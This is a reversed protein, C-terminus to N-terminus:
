ARIRFDAVIKQEIDAFSARGVFDAIEKVDANDPLMAPDPRTIPEIFGSWPTRRLFAEMERRAPHDEAWLYSWPKRLGMFHTVVPQVGAFASNKAATTMNFLPSLELWGGQLVANLAAQDHYRHADHAEMVKRRIARRNWEKVDILLVGSNLYKGAPGAIRVERAAEETGGFTMILDRAAAVAHGGMDLDFLRYLYRKDPYTDSDLYLLRDFYKALMEPLFYRLYAAGSIRAMTNPLLTDMPRIPQFSCEPLVQRGQEIGTLHDTAVVVQTKPSPRMALVRSALFVAAPFQAADATIVIARRM